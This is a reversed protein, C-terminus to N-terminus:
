GVSEVLIYVDFNDSLMESNPILLDYFKVDNKNLYENTYQTYEEITLYLNGNKIEKETIIFDYEPENPLYLVVRFDIERHKDYYELGYTKELELGKEIVWATSKEPLAASPDHTIYYHSKKNVSGEIQIDGDIVTNGDENDAYSFVEIDNKGNVTIQQLQETYEVSEKPVIIYTTYEYPEAFQEHPVQEVSKYYDLGINYKGDSYKLDYYGILKKEHADDYFFQKVCVVYNLDFLSSDFEAPTIYTSLDEYTAIFKLYAGVKKLKIADLPIDFCNSVEEYKRIETYYIDKEEYEFYVRNGYKEKLNYDGENDPVIGSGTDTSSNTGTEASSGTGTSVNEGPVNCSAFMGAIVLVIFLNLLLKKM